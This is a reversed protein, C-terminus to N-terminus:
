VNAMRRRTGDDQKGQRLFPASDRAKKMQASGGATM